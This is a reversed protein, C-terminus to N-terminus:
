RLEIRPSKGMAEALDELKREIPEGCLAQLARPMQLSVQMATVKLATQAIVPAATGAINLALRLGLGLNVAKATAEPGLLASLAEFRSPTKDNGIYRHFLAIALAARGRHDIGTLNGHLTAEFIQEHRHDPHGRWAADALICAARRIRSEEPTEGAGLPASWQFLAEELGEERTFRVAWERLNTLLPDLARVEEPLRSFLVGERVGYSSVIVQELRTAKLVRELVVAGYPLTEARKRSEEFIAELTRKNRGTLFECHAIAAEREIAYQHLVNVPHNTLRMHIRAISRWVGGVAYLAKGRFHDLGKVESLSADTLARARDLKAGSMEMLRLPGVPLSVGKQIHGHKIPTLELSGGGLDGSMGDANPIGAVVGVAALNAEQEGSLIQINANLTDRARAVFENGNRADRVAATAVVDLRKVGRAEAIIRFRALAAMACEVGDDDLSGTTALARGIGCLAKENFDTAPTRSARDYIVLRISNSGIDIVGSRGDTATKDRKASDLSAISM